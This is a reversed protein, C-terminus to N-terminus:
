LLFDWFKFFLTMFNSILSFYKTSNCYLTVGCFLIEWIQDKTLSVTMYISISIYDSFALVHMHLTIVWHLWICHSNRIELNNKEWFTIVRLNKNGLLPGAMGDCQTTRCKTTFTKAKNIQVLCFQLHNFVTYLLHFTIDHLKTLTLWTVLTTEWSMLNKNKLIM